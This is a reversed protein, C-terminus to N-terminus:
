RPQAGPKQGGGRLKPAAPRAVALEPTPIRSRRADPRRLPLQDLEGLLACAGGASPAAALFADGRAVPQPADDWM